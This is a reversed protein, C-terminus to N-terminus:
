LGYYDTDRGYQGDCLHRGTTLRGATCLSFHRFREMAAPRGRHRRVINSHPAVYHAATPFVRHYRVMSVIAGGQDLDSFAAPIAEESQPGWALSGEQVDIDQLRDNRAFHKSRGELVGLLSGAEAFWPSWNVLLALGTQKEEIEDTRFTSALRQRSFSASVLPSSSLGTQQVGKEQVGSASPALVYRALRWDLGRRQRM